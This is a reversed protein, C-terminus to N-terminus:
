DFSKFHEILLMSKEKNNKTAEFAYRQKVDFSGTKTQMVIKSDYINAHDAVSSRLISYLSLQTLYTTNVVRENASWVTLLAAIRAAM